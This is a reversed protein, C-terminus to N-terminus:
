IHRSHRTRIFIRVLHYMVFVHLSAAIIDWNPFVDFLAKSVPEHPLVGVLNTYFAYTAICYLVCMKWHVVALPALFAFAAFLYREHMQTTFMFFAYVQITCLLLVIQVSSFTPWKKQLVPKLVTSGFLFAYVLSFAALGYTRATMGLYIITDSTSNADDGYLIWWINYANLSVTPYYGVANVIPRFLAQVENQWWFPTIICLFTIIFGIYSSKLAQKSQISLVLFTPVFILAQPKTFLACAILIGAITFRKTFFAYLTLLVFLTYISDVQGWYASTFIVAPNVWYLVAAWLAKRRSTFLLATYYVCMAILGDAIVGPMKVISRQWANSIEGFYDTAFQLIHGVIKFIFLSVVPYNPLMNNDIQRHYSPILGFEVASKAWKTNVDVDFDYGVEPLWYLRLILALLLALIAAVISTVHLVKM